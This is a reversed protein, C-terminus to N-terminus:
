SYRKFAGRNLPGYQTEVLGGTARMSEHLQRVTM